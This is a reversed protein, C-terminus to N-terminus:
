FYPYKQFQLQLQMNKFTTWLYDFTLPSSFLLEKYIIKM